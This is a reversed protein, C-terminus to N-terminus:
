SLDPLFGRTTVGPTLFNLFLSLNSIIYHSRFALLPAEGQHRARLNVDATIRFIAQLGAACVAPLSLFSLQCQGDVHLIIVEPLNPFFVCIIIPDLLKAM